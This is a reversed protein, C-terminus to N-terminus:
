CHAAYKNAVRYITHAMAKNKLSDAAQSNWANTSNMMPPSLRGHCCCGMGDWRLLCKGQAVTATAIKM